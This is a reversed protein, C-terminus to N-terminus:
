LYERARVLTETGETVTIKQARSLLFDSIPM